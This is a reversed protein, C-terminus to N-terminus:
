GWLNDEKYTTPSSLGSERLRKAITEFISFDNRKIRNWCQLCYAEEVRIQSNAPQDVTVLKGCVLCPVPYKVAVYM